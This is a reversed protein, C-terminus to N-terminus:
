SKFLVRFFKEFEPLWWCLYGAKTPHIPDAMYLHYKEESITNMENNWLDLIQIDWKEKLKYLHDYMTQYHANDFKTGTYFTVPCHWTEQAYAIIYEMAGCVTSVDFTTINKSDTIKGIPKPDEAKADNTSLQCMFADAQINKPINHIREVYSNEGREDQVLTTGSLAEKVAHIGDRKVLFDVFSQGVSAAGFTVSSGLFLITKDKLVPDDEEKVASIDYQPDNGPLVAMMEMFMKQREEATMQELETM